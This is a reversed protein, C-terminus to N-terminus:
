DHGICLVLGILNSFCVDSPECERTRDKRPDAKCELYFAFAQTQCVPGEQDLGQFALAGLGAGGPGGSRAPAREARGCVVTCKKKGKKARATSIVPCMRPSVAGPESCRSLTLATSQADDAGSKGVEGIQSCQGM